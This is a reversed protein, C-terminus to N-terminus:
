STQTQGLLQLVGDVIEGVTIAQIDVDDPSTVDFHEEVEMNIEVVDLSDCGLDNILRDQERIQQPTIGMQEGVVQRVVELVQERSFRSEDTRRSATQM